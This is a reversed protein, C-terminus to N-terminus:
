SALAQDVAVEVLSLPPVRSTNWPEPSSNCKANGQSIDRRPSNERCNSSIEACLRDMSEGVGVPKIEQNVPVRLLERHDVEGLHDRHTYACTHIIYQFHYTQYAM